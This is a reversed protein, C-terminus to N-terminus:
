VTADPSVSPPMACRKRPLSDFHVTMAFAFGDMSGLRMRTPVFSRMGDLSMAADAAVVTVGDAVELLLVFVLALVLVPM